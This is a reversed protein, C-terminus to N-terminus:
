KNEYYFGKMLNELTFSSSRPSSAIPPDIVTSPPPVGSLPAPAAASSASATLASDADDAASSAIAAAHVRPAAKVLLTDPLPTPLIPESKAPLPAPLPVAGRLLADNKVMKIEITIGGQRGGKQKLTSRSELNDPIASITVVGNGTDILGKLSFSVFPTEDKYKKKFNIMKSSITSKTRTDFPEIKYQSIDINNEKFQPFLIKWIDENIKLDTIKTMAVENKGGETSIIDKLNTENLLKNIFISKEDKPKSEDEIQKFMGNIVGKIINYKTLDTKGESSILITESLLDTIQKKLPEM